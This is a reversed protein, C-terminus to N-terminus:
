PCIKGQEYEDDQDSQCASSAAMGQVGNFVLGGPDPFIHFMDNPAHSNATGKCGAYPHNDDVLDGKDDYTCEGQTNSPSPRMPMNQIYTQYGCLGCHFMNSGAEPKSDTYNSWVSPNETAGEIRPPCDTALGTVDMWALANSKAYQYINIGGYLGIWDRSIYRGAEPDYYRHWNYILGSERDRYQGPFGQNFEVEQGNGDVDDDIYAKGFAEHTSKWVVTGSSNTLQRPTQLHDGHVEYTGNADQMQAALHSEPLYAYRKTRTGNGDYEAMLRSGEYLFWTTTSTDNENVTKKIRLNDPAYAYSANVEGKSYQTMRNRWDWQYASGDSGTKRNGASDYGYSIEGVTKLRHNADYGYSDTASTERNGVRDYTFSEDPLGISESLGTARTSSTLRNLADYGFSHAGANDTQSTINLVDDYGYTLAQLSATGKKVEIGSVPGNAKYTYMSTLANPHTMQKLHDNAYYTFGYLQSGPLNASALQNLANYQYTHTFASGADTFVLKKLNGAADYDRDFVRNGGPLYTVTKVDPRNLADWSQTWLAGSQIGDDSMSTPNGNVDYGM